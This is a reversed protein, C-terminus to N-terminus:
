RSSRRTMARIVMTGVTVSAAAMASLLVAVYLKEPLSGWAVSARWTFVGTFLLAFVAATWTAARSGAPHLKLALIGLVIMLLGTASGSAIATKAKATFGAAAWGAVGCLMLFAGYGILIKGLKM